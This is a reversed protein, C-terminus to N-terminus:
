RAEWDDLIKQAAALLADPKMGSDDIHGAVLEVLELRNRFHM